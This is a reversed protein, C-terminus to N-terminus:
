YVIISNFKILNFQIHSIFMFSLLTKLQNQVSQLCGTEWVGIKM